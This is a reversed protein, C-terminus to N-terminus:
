NKKVKVFLQLNIKCDYIKLLEQRSAIGITKIMNGNAGIIIPKQSDKEVIISAHIHFINKEYKMQDVVVSISYPIEQKTMKIIQERITESIIFEDDLINESIKENSSLYRSVNHIVSEINYNTFSSIEIINKPTIFSQIETKRHEIQDISAIDNKTLLVIINEIKYKIL